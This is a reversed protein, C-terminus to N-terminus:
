ASKQKLYKKLSEELRKYDDVSGSFPWDVREDLRKCLRNFEDESKLLNLQLQEAINYLEKTNKEVEEPSSIKEIEIYAIPGAIVLSVVAGNPLSYNFTEREGVKSIFGFQSFIKVFGLFQEQSIPQVSETRDHAGFLGVKVV